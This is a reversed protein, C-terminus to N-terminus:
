RSGCRRRVNVPRDPLDQSKNTNARRSLEHTVRFPEKGAPVIRRNWAFAAIRRADTTELGRRDVPIVGHCQLWHHERLSVTIVNHHDARREPHTSREDMHHRTLQRDPNASKKMLLAGSIWSRHGDRADVKEYCQELARDKKRDKTTEAMVRPTGKPLGCKVDAFVSYNVSM